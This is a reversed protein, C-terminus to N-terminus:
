AGRNHFSNGSSQLVPAGRKERGMPAHDSGAAVQRRSCRVGSQGLEAAIIPRRKVAKDAPAAVALGIGLIEDLTEKGIQQLALRVRLGIAVFALKAGEQKRGELMIKRIDPIPFARELTATAAVSESAYFTEAADM